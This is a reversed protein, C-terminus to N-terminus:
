PICSKVTPTGLSSQRFRPQRHFTPYVHRPRKHGFRERLELFNTYVSLKTAGPLALSAVVGCLGQTVRALAACDVKDPTDSSQHYHAYRFPATDTVMFGRYGERWFSGHDSWDVGTVRAFTACCEVPFGSHARFAGAARHMLGRSRLDSVFAIFNGRDPYFWRFAPPYQQSGPVDSYCGMTELAIMARVDDGRQRCARAYVRSGMQDTRFFPPEENVFAVFRITRSLPAGDSGNAFVRSLELLSAVGSANDNAGATGCVSDYHAGVVIMESNGRRVAELNACTVGDATFPQRTVEYGQQRWQGEIYDAARALAAPRFVNREGIEGALAQVHARLAAAPIVPPAMLRQGRGPRGCMCWLVGAFVLLIAGVRFAANRTILKM